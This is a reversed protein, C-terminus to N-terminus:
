SSGVDVFHTSRRTDWAMNAPIASETSALLPNLNTNSSRGYDVTDTDLSQGSYM